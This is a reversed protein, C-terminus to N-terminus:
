NCEEQHSKSPGDGWFRWKRNYSHVYGDFVACQVILCFCPLITYVFHICSTYLKYLYTYLKYLDYTSATFSSVASCIYLYRSSELVICFRRGSSPLLELHPTLHSGRWTWLGLLWSKWMHASIPLPHTKLPRVSPDVSSCSTYLASIQVSLIDVSLWNLFNISRHVTGLWTHDLLTQM